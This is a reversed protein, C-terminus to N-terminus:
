ALGPRRTPRPLVTAAIETATATATADCDTEDQEVNIAPSLSGLFHCPQLSFCDRTKQNAHFRRNTPDVHM